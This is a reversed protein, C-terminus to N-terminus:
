EWPTGSFITCLLEKVGLTDWFFNHMAIGKCESSFLLRCWGTALALGKIQYNRLGCWGASHRSWSWSWTARPSGCKSPSWFPSSPPPPSRWSGPPSTRSLSLASHSPVRASVLLSLKYLVNHHEYCACIPIYVFLTFASPFMITVPERVKGQGRLEMDLVFKRLISGDLPPIQGAASFAFCLPPKSPSRWHYGHKCTLM